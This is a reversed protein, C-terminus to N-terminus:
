LFGKALALSTLAAVLKGPCFLVTMELSFSAPRLACCAATFATSVSSCWNYRTANASLLTSRWHSLTMNESSDVNLEPLHHAPKLKCVMPLANCSKIRTSRWVYHGHTQENNPNSRGHLPQFVADYLLAGLRGEICVCILLRLPAMQLLAKDRHLLGTGVLGSRWERNKHQELIAIAAPRHWVWQSAVMLARYSGWQSHTSHPSFFWALFRAQGGESFYLHQKSGQTLHKPHLQKMEAKHVIELQTRASIFSIRPQPKLIRSM